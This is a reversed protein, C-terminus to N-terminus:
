AHWVVVAKRKQTPHRNSESRGAHAALMQLFRLPFNFPLWIAYYLLPRQMGFGWARVDQNRSEEFGTVGDDSVGLCSAFNQDMSAAAWGIRCYGCSQGTFTLAFLEEIGAIVALHLRNRRLQILLEAATQM